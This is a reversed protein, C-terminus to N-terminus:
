YIRKILHKLTTIYQNDNLIVHGNDVLYQKIRDITTNKYMYLYDENELVDTHENVFKKIETLNDIIQEM